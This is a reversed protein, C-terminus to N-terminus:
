KKSYYDIVKQENFGSPLSSSIMPYTPMQIIRGTFLKENFELWEPISGEKLSEQLKTFMASKKFREKFEIIDEKKVLYSPAWVCKGNVLVHKHTILQRANKRSDTFGLRVLVTDLRRELFIMLNEWSIGQSNIAKRTYNRLQTDTILYYRRIKQKERLQVAFDSQKKRFRPRKGPPVPRKEFSCKETDCKNGKLYLKIGERRCLRCSPGTYRGM